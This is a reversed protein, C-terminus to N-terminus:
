EDGLPNRSKRHHALPLAPTPAPAAPHSPRVSALPPPPHRGPSLQELAQADFARLAASTEFTPTVLQWSRQELLSSLLPV